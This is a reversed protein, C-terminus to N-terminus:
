NPTESPFSIATSSQQNAKAANMQALARNSTCNAKTRYGPDGANVKSTAWPGSARSPAVSNLTCGEPDYALQQGTSACGSALMAAALAAIATKKM